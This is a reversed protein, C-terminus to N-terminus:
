KDSAGKKEKNETIAHEVEAKDSRKPLKESNGSAAKRSTVAGGIVQGTRAQPM